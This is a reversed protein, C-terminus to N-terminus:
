YRYSCSSVRLPSRGDAPAVTPMLEWRQIGINAEVSSIKSWGPYWRYARADRLTPNRYEGKRKKDKYEIEYQALADTPESGTSEYWHANEGVHTPYVKPESNM